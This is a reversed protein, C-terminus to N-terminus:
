LHYHHRTFTTTKSGAELFFLAPALVIVQSNVVAVGANYYALFNESYFFYKNHLYVQFLHPIGLRGLM